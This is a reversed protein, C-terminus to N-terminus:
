YLRESKFHENMIYGKEDDELLPILHEEAKVLCEKAIDSENLHYHCKGKISLYIPNSDGDSELSIAKEVLSLAKKYNGRMFQGQAAGGKAGAIISKVYQFM